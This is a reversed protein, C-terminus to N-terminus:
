LSVSHVRFDMMLLITRSASGNMLRFLKVLFNIDHKETMIMLYLCTIFNKALTDM